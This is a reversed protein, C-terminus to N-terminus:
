GSYVLDYSDITDAVGLEEAYPLLIKELDDRCTLKKEAENFDWYYQPVFLVCDEGDDSIGPADFRIGTEVRMAAAAIESITGFCMLDRIDENTINRIDKENFLADLDTFYNPDMWKKVSNYHKYFFDHVKEASVNNCSIGIGEVHWMNWSM